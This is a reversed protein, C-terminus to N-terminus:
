PFLVVSQTECWLRQQKVEEQLMGRVPGSLWRGGERGALRGGEMGGAGDGQGREAM